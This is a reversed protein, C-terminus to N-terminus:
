YGAERLREESTPEIGKLMCYLGYLWKYYEWDKNWWWDRKEDKSEFFNFVIEALKWDGDPSGPTDEQIRKLYIAEALRSIISKDDM